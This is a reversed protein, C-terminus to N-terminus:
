KHSLHYLLIRQKTQSGVVAKPLDDDYITFPTTGPNVRTPSGM